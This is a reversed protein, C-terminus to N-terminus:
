KGEKFWDALPIIYSGDNRREGYIIYMISEDDMRAYIETGKYYTICPYGSM